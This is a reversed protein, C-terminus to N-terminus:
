KKMALEFSVNPSPIGPIDLFRKEERAIEAEQKCWANWSASNISWKSDFLGQKELYERISKKDEDTKPTPYYEKKRLTITGFNSKFTSLELSQLLEVLKFEAEEYEANLASSVKKAEEYKQRKEFLDQCLSQLQAVTTQNEM